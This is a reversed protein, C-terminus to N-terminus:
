KRGAPKREKKSERIYPALVFVLSLAFLFGMVSVIGWEIQFIEPLVVTERPFTPFMVYALINWVFHFSIPAWLKEGTLYYAVSLVVGGLFMNLSFLLILHVPVTGLPSWWSFHYISFILSSGVIAKNRGWIRAMRTLLFGRYCLEEVFAVPTTIIFESVMLDATVESAPRLQGGFTAAVVIVVMAGAIGAIAGGILQHNTKPGTTLGLVSISTEGEWQLFVVVTIYMAFMVVFFMITSAVGYMSYPVRSPIIASMELYVLLLAAFLIIRLKETPDTATM